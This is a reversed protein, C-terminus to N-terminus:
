FKHRLRITEGAKVTVTEVYAPFETNRVEIKYSGPALSLSKVPPSIGRKTGNVYVEGWPLISLEVSGKAAPEPKKKTDEVPKPTNAAPKAHAEQPAQPKHAAPSAKEPKTPAAAVSASTGAVDTTVTTTDPKRLLLAGGIAAILVFLATMGIIVSKNAGANARPGKHMTKSPSSLTSAVRAHSTPLHTATDGITYVEHERVHKDTRTGAEQFVRYYDDSLRSVVEYYSRSVLIENPNSFSMVRQAVNIGDGIINMQGNLDRILRIPGLNIGSRVELLPLREPPEAAIADRLAMAAFLAEEPNGQFSIAAGDGTDLIIRETPAVHQLVDTMLENFRQKLVLQETVSRKSYEIIDLFLISSVFTRNSVDVM